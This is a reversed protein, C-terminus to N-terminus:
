TRGIQIEELFDERKEHTKYTKEELIDSIREAALLLYRKAGIGKGGPGELGRLPVTASGMSTSSFPFM